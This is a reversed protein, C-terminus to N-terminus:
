HKVPRGFLKEGAEIAIKMDNEKPPIPCAFGEKYACLPNYALNFDIILHGNILDKFRFDLYRGGGFTEKYNTEDTFPIFLYDEFGEKIRLTASQYLYLKQAQGNLVFNVVGYVFYKKIVGNHTQMDFGITDTIQTVNAQVLFTSDPPYFRLFKVDRKSLPSHDDQLFEQKYNDRHTEIREAFSQANLDACLMLLLLQLYITHITPQFNM